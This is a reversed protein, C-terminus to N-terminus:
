NIALPIQAAFADLTDQGILSRIERCIEKFWNNQVTYGGYQIGNIYLFSYGSGMVCSDSMDSTMYPLSNDILAFLAEVEEASVTVDETLTGNLASLRFVTDDILSITIKSTDETNDFAAGYVYRLAANTVLSGEWDIIGGCEIINSYGIEALKGAAQQSRNGSRCYIYIEQDLDPLAAPKQDTISENPINVAEPIHGSAYEEETRVDVIICNTDEEFRDAAQAMTVRQYTHAQDASVSMFSLTCTMVTLACLRVFKATIFTRM